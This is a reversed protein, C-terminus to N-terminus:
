KAIEINKIAGRWEAKGQFEKRTLDLTLIVAKNELERYNNNASMIKIVEGTIDRFTYETYEIMKGTNMVKGKEDKVIKGDGGKLAEPLQKAEWMKLEIKDLKTIM